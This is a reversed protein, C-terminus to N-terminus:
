VPIVDSLDVDIAEEPIPGRDFRLTNDRARTMALQEFYSQIEPIAEALREVYERALFLVTAKTASRVCASTPQDTVLSMEGFLDGARLRALPVPEASAARAIVECEGSLILFLGKGRVGEAILETGAEVELGEFRRLLEGQQSKTFPSFIPSTQLLNKILRERSFRDLGDRVAPVQAMVQELSARSIEIVDAEGVVAVSATRPQGTILAMEGFLTNEFLRAVDKSVGDPGTVFVRLEGNAVLFLSDGTDGQRMVLQGDEMRLVRLSRGVAFFSDQSLESLFPLPHYQEQYGVFVSLDLAARGANEAAKELPMGKVPDGADLKADPNVPAPKIAFRALQPSGSAFTRVLLEEIEVVPHGLQVLAHSAVIAPLPHGSRIDHIAVTKYVQAAAENAGIEALADAVLLRVENALPVAALIKEYISFAQAHDGQKRLARAEAKAQRLTTSM